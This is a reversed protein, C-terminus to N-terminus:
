YKESLLNQHSDGPIYLGNLKNLWLHLEVAPMKFSIPIVKIGAQELFKVHAAPIYQEVNTVQEDGDHVSGRLPETLIGYLPRNNNKVKKNESDHNHPRPEEEPIDEEAPEPM